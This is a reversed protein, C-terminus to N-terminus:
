GLLFSRLKGHRRPTISPTPANVAPGSSLTLIFTQGIVVNSGAAPIQGIVTGVPQDSAGRNTAAVTYGQSALLATASELSLLLLDPARPQVVTFNHTFQASGTGDSVAIVLTQPDSPDTGTLAATGVAHNSANITLWAPGSVKTVTTPDGEPDPYLAAMDIDIVTGVNFSLPFGDTQAPLANNVTFQADAPTTDLSLDYHTANVTQRATSFNAVYFFEGNTRVFVPFGAPTTTDAIWVDGTAVAPSAGDGLSYGTPSGPSVVGIYQRGTPATFYVSAIVALASDTGGNNLVFYLDYIPKTLGSLVLTDATSVSKNASAPAAAGSSDQGAKVQAISPAALGRKQAVGYVTSSGSPTLSVTVSSTTVSQVAPAVDFGLTPTPLAFFYSRRARNVQNTLDTASTTTAHATLVTQGYWDTLTEVDEWLSTLTGAGLDEPSAGGHFGLWEDPTLVGAWLAVLGIEGKFGNTNDPGKGILTYNVGSPVRTSANVGANGGNLYVAIGSDFSAGASFRAGASLLADTFATQPGTGDRADARVSGGATLSISFRNQNSGSIGLSVLTQTGSLATTKAIVGMSLPAATLIAGSRDLYDTLAAFVRSM